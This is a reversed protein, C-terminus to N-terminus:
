RALLLRETAADRVGAYLEDLVRGFTDAAPDARAFLTMSSRLKLADLEGLISAPDRVPLQLLAEAAEFLRQGLVPHALYAIAEEISSIAYFRAMESSGLGDIQPFVFWIWHGRKRGQHIEALARQYAGGRDQADVFRQLNFRDDAM